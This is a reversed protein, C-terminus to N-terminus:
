TNDREEAAPRMGRAGHDSVGSGACSGLAQEVRDLAGTIMVRYGEEPLEGLAARGADVHARSRATDGLRRYVDALNLHLSPYFGRISVPVGADAARAETVDDAAALARLDWELEALADDQVDAMSHALACRHLADGNAGISSWVEAFVRRAGDRDGQQGLEIGRGIEEMTADSVTGV